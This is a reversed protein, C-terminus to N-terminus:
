NVTDQTYTQVLLALLSLVQKSLPPPALTQQELRASLDLAETYPAQHMLIQVNTGPRDDYAFRLLSFFFIVWYKDVGYDERNLKQTRCYTESKYKHCVPLFFITAPWCCDENTTLSSTAPNSPL